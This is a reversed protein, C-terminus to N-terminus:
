SRRGRRRRGHRPGRGHAAAAGLDGPIVWYFERSTARRGEPHVELLSGYQRRLRARLAEAPSGPFAKLVLAGGPRLVREAAGLAALQLEEMAAQDLDRIGTLHPAADCFLADAPGGLVQVIREWTERSTLDGVVVRVPTPLEEPQELDVGVVKGKPGVHEALRQLWGGPWCGLEVVSAGRRLGPLRRLLDDLKFVGRSRYGAEHARRYFGDRPEYRSM